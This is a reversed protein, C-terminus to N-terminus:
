DTKRFLNESSSPQAPQDLNPLQQLWTQLFDDFGFQIIEIPETRGRAYIVRRVCSAVFTRHQRYPGRRDAEFSLSRGSVVRLRIQSEEIVLRSRLVTAVMFVGCFM